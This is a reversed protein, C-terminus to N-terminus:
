HEVTAGANGIVARRAAAHNQFGPMLENGDTCAADLSLRVYRNPLNCLGAFLDLGEAVSRGSCGADVVFVRKEDSLPEKRDPLVAVASVGEAKIIETHADNRMILRILDTVEARLIVYPIADMAAFLLDRPPTGAAAFAFQQEIENRIIHNAAFAAAFRGLCFEICDAGDLIPVLAIRGALTGPDLIQLNSSGPESSAPHDHQKALLGVHMTAPFHSFFFSGVGAQMM